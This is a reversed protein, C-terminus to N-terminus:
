GGFATLINRYADIGTTLIVVTGAVLILLTSIFGRKNSTYYKNAGFGPFVEVLVYMGLLSAILRLTVILSPDSVSTSTLYFIFGAIVILYYVFMSEDPFLKTYFYEKLSYDVQQQGGMPNSVFVAVADQTFKRNKLDPKLNFLLIPVFFSSSVLAIILGFYSINFKIDFGKQRIRYRYLYIIGFPLTLNLLISYLIVFFNPFSNIVIMFRFWLSIGLILGLFSLSKIEDNTFLPTDGYKPILNYPISTDSAIYWPTTSQTQLQSPPIMPSPSESPIYSNSSTPSGSPIYSSSPTGQGGKLDFGCKPCFNQNPNISNQCNPCIAQGAQPLEPLSSGCRQCFRDGQQYIKSCVPCKGSSM